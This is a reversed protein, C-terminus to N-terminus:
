IESRIRNLGHITRELFGFSWNVGFITKALVIYDGNLNSM